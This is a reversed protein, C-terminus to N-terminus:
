RAARRDLGGKARYMRGDAIRLLSEPSDADAPFSAVGISVGIRARLADCIRSAMAQGHDITAQPMVLAFEDGGLRGFQDHDGAIRGVQAGVWRLLDDGAAHGLRDNVPKFDDLDFLLVCVQSGRTRGLHLEHGFAELLGRRNLATTLRDVRSLILADREASRHAQRGIAGTWWAIPVFMAVGITLAIETGPSSLRIGVVTCVLAAAALVSLATPLVIGFFVAGLILGGVYPSTLGGDYVAAAALAGEGGIVLAAYFGASARVRAAGPRTVIWGVGLGGVIWAAAGVVVVDHFPGTRGDTLIRALVVVAAVAAFVCPVAAVDRRGLLTSPASGM